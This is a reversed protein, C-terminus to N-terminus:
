HRIDRHWQSFFNLSKEGMFSRAYEGAATQAIDELFCSKLSNALLTNSHTLSHEIFDFLEVMKGVDINEQWDPEIKITTPSRRFQSQDIFFHAFENCVGCFTFDGNDEINYNDDSNWREIFSPAIYIFFKLLEDPTDIMM